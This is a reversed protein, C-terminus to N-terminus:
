AFTDLLKDLAADLKEPTEYIGDAIAARISAVKETRIDGGTNNTANTQLIDQAEPSLDLQDGTSAAAQSANVPGAARTNSARNVSSTAQGAQLSNIQM